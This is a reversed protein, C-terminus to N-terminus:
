PRPENRRRRRGVVAAASGLLLLSLTGPEPVAATDVPDITLNLAFNGTQPALGYFDARVQSEFLGSAGALCAASLDQVTYCPFSEQDFQTLNLESPLTDPAFNGFQSVALTYTANGTLTLASLAVDMDFVPDLALAPIVEGDPGLYTVLADDRYLALMLDLGTAGSQADFVTAASTTLASFTFSGPGLFFEYLFVDNDFTFEGALTTSVPDIGILIPAAEAERPMCALLSLGLVALRRSVCM